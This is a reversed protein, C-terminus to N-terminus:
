RRGISSGILGGVIGSGTASASRPTLYPQMARALEMPNKTSFYVTGPGTFKTVLADGGFITTKMNGHKAVDYQAGTFAVIQYNDIRTIQGPALDIRRIGGWGDVFVMGTGVTKLMFLNTGFLGKAFGQWKTDLTLDGLSCVYSGSQIYYEDNVDIPMIDGLANGTIGLRSYDQKATYENIFFSEGSLVMTKLTKFLGGRRQKTDISISDSMYVMSAAEATVKDGANLTFDVMGMPNNVIEYDM